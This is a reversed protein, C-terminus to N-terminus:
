VNNVITRTDRNNNGHGINEVLFTAQLLMKSILKILDKQNTTTECLEYCSTGVSLVNRLQLSDMLNFKGCSLLMETPFM